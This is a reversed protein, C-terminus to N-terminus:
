PGMRVIDGASMTGNTPDYYAHDAYKYMAGEDNLADIGWNNNLDPGFSNLIWKRGNYV